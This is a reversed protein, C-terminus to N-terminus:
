SVECQYFNANLTFYVVLLVGHEIIIFHHEMLPMKLSQFSLKTFAATNKFLNVSWCQLTVASSHRLVPTVCCQLSVASFHCLVPTVCCQLSVASFHCLVPTDWRALLYVTLFCKFINSFESENDTLANFALTITMPKNCYRFMLLFEAREFYFM